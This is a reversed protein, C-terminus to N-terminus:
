PSPSTSRRFVLQEGREDHHEQGAQRFGLKRLLGISPGNLPDVTARFETVGRDVEAWRLLGAAAEAAFGHRRHESVVTYGIEAQNETDPPGHFGAEGVITGGSREYEQSAGHLLVYPGWAITEPRQEALDAHGRLWTWRGERWEDPLPVGLLASADDWDEALLARMVKASMPVLRLRGTYIVPVENMASTVTVSRGQGTAM